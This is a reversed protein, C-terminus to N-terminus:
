KFDILRDGKYTLTGKKGVRFNSFSYESVDFALKKTGVSFVVTYTVSKFTGQIRSVPENKYKDTIVAKVSRVKAYRSRIFRLVIMVWCIVFVMAALYSLIDAGFNQM